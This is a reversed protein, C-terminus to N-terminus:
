VALGFQKCIYKRIAKGVRVRENFRRSGANVDWWSEVWWWMSESAGQVELARLLLSPVYYGDKMHSTLHSTDREVTMSGDPHLTLVGEGLTPRGVAQRSLGHHVKGTEGSVRMSCYWCDGTSPAQVEGRELADMFGEAYKKVQEKLRRNEDGKDEDCGGLFDGEVYCGETYPKRSEQGNTSIWWQGRDSWIEAPGFRNMREKTVVTQWGGTQYTVRGATFILIDTAHLKLAIRGEGRSELFTNNAVKRRDRGALVREADDYGNLRMM